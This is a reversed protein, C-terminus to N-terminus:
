RLRFFNIANKVSHEAILRQSSWAGNNVSWVHDVLSMIKQPPVATKCKLNVQKKAPLTDLPNFKEIVHPVNDPAFSHFLLKDIPVHNIWKSCVSKSTVQGSISIHMDLKLYDEIKAKSARRVDFVASNKAVDPSNKMKEIFLDHDGQDLLALPKNLLKSAYLITQFCKLQDELSSRRLNRHLGTTLGIAYKSQMMTFIKKRTLLSSFMKTEKYAETPHIGVLSFLRPIKEVDRLIHILDLCRQSDILNKPTLIMGLVGAERATRLRNVLHFRFKSSTLHIGCDIM